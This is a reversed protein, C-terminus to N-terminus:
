CSPLRVEAPLKSMIVPILFSGYQNATVGVSELGRVNIHIKYYAARLHSTKDGSCAQIKVFDDM